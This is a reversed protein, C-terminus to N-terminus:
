MIVKRCVLYEANMIVELFDFLSNWSMSDYVRLKEQKQKLEINLGESASDIALLSSGSQVPKEQLTTTQSSTSPKNKILTTGNSSNLLSGVREEIETSMKIQYMTLLISLLIGYAVDGFQCLWTRWYKVIYRKRLPVMSNMSIQVIILCHFKAWLLHRGKIIHM